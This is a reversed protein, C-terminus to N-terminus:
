LCFSVGVRYFFRRMFNLVWGENRKTRIGYVVDYGDEWLSVFNSILQPSDQLDADIQIVADGSSNQYNLLISKQFGVNRSFRIIKVRNDIKAHELLKEYTSDVSSNDTFLFEFKYKDLESAIINIENLLNDINDEENFVPISITILKM